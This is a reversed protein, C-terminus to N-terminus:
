KTVETATNAPKDDTLAGIIGTILFTLGNMIALFKVQMTPDLLVAIMTASGAIANVVGRWTSAQNLKSM